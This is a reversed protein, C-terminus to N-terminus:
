FVRLNRIFKLPGRENRGRGKPDLGSLYLATAYIDGHNPVASRPSKTRGKRLEGTKPDYAPDMHGDPLLPIAELTKEGVGGYQRGRLVEGGLFAASTVKWHQCIDQGNIQKQKEKETAKSNLISNVNGHITRGFESTIVITTRDFLSKGDEGCPTNKLRSVFAKLPEWLDRKLMGTQDALGVPKGNRWLSGRNKHSDYRRIDRSEIWFACSMDARMLEYAMMAQVNANPSFKTRAKNGNVSRYTILEDEREVAFQERLERDNFLREIFGGDFRRGKEAIQTYIKRASNYSKVAEINEDKLIGGRSDDLFEQIKENVVDGSAAAMNRLFRKLKAPPGAYITHAHPPGLAHYYGRRGTYQAENLEGDSLWWHWSLNPLVSPQGYVEALAQMVSREDEEREDQPRFKYAGIHAKLRERSHSTGTHMSSLVAMDGFLEKGAEALYGYHIRGHNYIGYRPEGFHLVRYREDSPNDLRQHINNETMVPNFMDYGLWGGELFWYVLFRKNEGARSAGEALAFARRDRPLGFNLFYSLFDACGLGATALGVRKLFRRRGVRGDRPFQPSAVRIDSDLQCTGSM